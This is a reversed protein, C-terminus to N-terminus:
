DAQRGCAWTDATGDVVIRAHQQSTNAALGLSRNLGWISLGEQAGSGHLACGSIRGCLLLGGFCLDGREADGSRLPRGRSLDLLKSRTLRHHTYLITRTDARVFMKAM